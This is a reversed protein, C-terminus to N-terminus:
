AFGSAKTAANSMVIEEARNKSNNQENFDMNTQSLFEHINPENTPTQITKPYTGRFKKKHIERFLLFYFLKRNGRIRLARQFARANRQPINEEIGSDIRMM